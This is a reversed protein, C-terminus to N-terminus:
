DDYIGEEISICMFKRIANKAKEHKKHYYKFIMEDARAEGYMASMAECVKGYAANLAILSELFLQAEKSITTNM